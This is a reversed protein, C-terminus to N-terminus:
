DPPHAEGALWWLPASPGLTGGTVHEDDYFSTWGCGAVPTGTAIVGRGSDWAGPVVDILGDYVGGTSIIRKHEGFSDFLHVGSTGESIALDGDKEFAFDLIVPHEPWPGDEVYGYPTPTSPDILDGSPGDGGTNPVEPLNLNDPNSCGFGVCVFIALMVLPVLIKMKRM